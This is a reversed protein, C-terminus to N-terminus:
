TEEPVVGVYAKIIAYYFALMYVGVTFVLFAVIIYVIPLPIDMYFNAFLTPSLGERNLTVMYPYRSSDNIIEGLFAILLAIPGLLLTSRPIVNKLMLTILAGASLAILALILLIKLAFVPLFSGFTIVDYILPAYRSLSIWYLPGALLQLLLFSVGVLIGIRVGRVDGIFAELSAIVFGGISLVAFVTHLLLIWYLSSGFATWAGIPSGGLYIAIAHPSTIEAFITRFGLPVGFGSIAMVWGLMMHKRPEIRGWTYWFAAISPIRVMIAAIAIAIPTFLVNTALAVLTPFFGALVVTIITGWVGSFLETVIMARFVRRAFVEAWANSRTVALTRYYATLVGVGLTISVLAIHIAVALQLVILGVLIFGPIQIESNM